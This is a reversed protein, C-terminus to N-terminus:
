ANRLIMRYAVALYILAPIMVALVTPVSFVVAMPAFLDQLYKFGLGIFLGITLRQGMSTQRLPGIVVALAMLGMSLYTLPTLIKGWFKLEYPLRAAKPKNELSLHHQIQSLTMKRPDSYAESALQEPNIANPWIMSALQEASSGSAALTTTSVDFLLWQGASGDYQGTDAFLTQTLRNAADVRYLLLGTLHGQADIGRVHAYEHGADLERRLWVGEKLTVSATAPLPQDGLGLIVRQKHQKATREGAPSVWESLGLNIVFFLFLTPLLAASIRWPSIGAARIATLEGSEAMNGLVLLLGIFIGYSMLEEIRRPTTLLLFELAEFFGYNAYDRNLQEILAFSLTLGALAAIVLTIGGLCKRTLYRDLITM